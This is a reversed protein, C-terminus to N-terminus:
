SEDWAGYRPRTQRVGSVSPHLSIRGADGSTSKKGDKGRLHENPVLVVVGRLQPGHPREEGTEDPDVRLPGGVLAQAEAQLEQAALQVTPGM